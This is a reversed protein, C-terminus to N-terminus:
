YYLARVKKIGRSIQKRLTSEKKGYIIALEKYSLGEMYKKLILEKTNADLHVDMLNEIKHFIELQQHQLELILDSDDELNKLCAKDLEVFKNKKSKNKHNYCTNRVLSYLYASPHEVKGEKMAEWFAILIEQKVDEATFNDFGFDDIRRAIHSAYKDVIAIYDTEKLINKNVQERNQSKNQDEM